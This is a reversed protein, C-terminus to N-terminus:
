SRSRKESILKPSGTSEKTRKRNRRNNGTGILCSEHIAKTNLQKLPEFTNSNNDDDNNDANIDADADIPRFDSNSLNSIGSLRSVEFDDSDTWGGSLNMRPVLPSTEIHSLQGSQNPTPSHFLSGNFEPGYPWKPTDPTRQEFITSLRRDPSENIQEHNNMIPSISGQSVDSFVSNSQTMLSCYSDNTHTMFSSKNKIEVLPSRLCTKNFQKALQTRPTDGSTPFKRNKNIESKM